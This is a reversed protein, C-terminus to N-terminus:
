LEVSIGISRKRRRGRVGWFSVKLGHQGRRGEAMKGVLKCRYQQVQVHGLPGIRFVVGGTKYHYRSWTYIGFPQGCVKFHVRTKSNDRRIDRM